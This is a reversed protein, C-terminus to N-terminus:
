GKKGNFINGVAGQGGAANFVQFGLQSVGKYLNSKQTAITARNAQFGALDALKQNTDLFSLNSAIQSQISGLAGLAISSDGAGGSNAVTQRLAGQQLRASRIQDRRAKASRNTALQREFRYQEQAARSARGAQITSALASGAGVVAGVAAIIPVAPM